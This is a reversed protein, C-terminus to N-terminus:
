LAWTVEGVAVNARTCPELRKEALWILMYSCGMICSPMEKCRYFPIDLAKRLPNVNLNVSLYTWTSAPRPCLPFAPVRPLRSLCCASVRARARTRARERRKYGRSRAGRHLIIYAEDGAQTGDQMLKDLCPCTAVFESTPQRDERTRFASLNHCSNAYFMLWTCEGAWRTWGNLCALIRFVWGKSWVRINVRQQVGIRPEPESRVRSLHM